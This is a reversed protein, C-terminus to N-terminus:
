GETARYPGIVVDAWRRLRMSPGADGIGWTYRRGGARPTPPAAGQMGYGAELM